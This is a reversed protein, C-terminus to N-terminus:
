VPRPFDPICSNFKRIRFSTGVGLGQQVAPKPSGCIRDAWDITFCHRPFIMWTALM